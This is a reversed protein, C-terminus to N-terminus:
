GIASRIKEALQEAEKNELIPGLLARAKEHDGSQAAIAAQKLTAGGERKMIEILKKGDPSRLANFLATTDFHAM